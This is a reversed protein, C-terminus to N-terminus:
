VKEAKSMERRRRRFRVLLIIIVVASVAAAMSIGGIVMRKYESYADKYEEVAQEYATLLMESEEAANDDSYYESERYDFVAEYSEEVDDYGKDYSKIQKFIKEEECFEMLNVIEEPIEYLPPALDTQVELRLAQEFAYGASIVSAEDYCRGVFEIGVPLGHSDLAMPVTMAPAGAAPAIYWGTSNGKSSAAAGHTMVTSLITPYVAVDVDYRDMAATFTKRYSAVNCEWSSALPFNMQIIQAGNAELLDVAKNFYGKFESSAGSALGRVVGIKMGNLAKESLYVSYDTEFGSMVSLIIAADEVTAAMPGATDRDGMCVTIGATSLLGKTPRIGVVGNASAPVRISANTDTGVCIPALSAAASVASGGSSGYSTRSLDFANNVRGYDSISYQSHEAYTDMNAKAAIVAGADKLAEVVEADEGAIKGALSSSGNTTAMGAVDINDKVIVPLGFVDSTRGSKEYIEDCKEAEELATDSVSIICQYMDGYAEIRELYLTMIQKYTLKGDDVAQQLEKIDMQTIDVAAFSYSEEEGLATIGSSAAFSFVLFAFIVTM